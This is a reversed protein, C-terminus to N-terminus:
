EYEGLFNLSIIEVEIESVEEGQRELARRTEEAIRKELRAIDDLEWIRREKAMAEIQMKHRRDGVKWAEYKIYYRYYKDESRQM